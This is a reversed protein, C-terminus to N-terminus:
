AQPAGSPTRITRMLMSISAAGMSCYLISSVVAAAILGYRPITFSWLTIGSIAAISNIMRVVRTKGSILLWIEGIRVCSMGVVGPLLLLFPTLAAAFSSGFLMAILFQGSLGLILMSITSIVIVILVTRKCLRPDVKGASHPLLVQGLAGPFYWIVEALNVANSYLGLEEPPRTAGLLFSDFRSVAFYSLSAGYYPLGTKSVARWDTTMSRRADRNSCDSLLARAQIALALTVGTGGAVYVAFYETVSSRGLWYLVATGGAVVFAGAMRAFSVFPIKKYGYLLGILDRQVVALSCAAITLPANHGGLEVISSTGTTPALASIITAVVAGILGHGFIGRLVVRRDPAVLSGNAVKVTLGQEVGLDLIIHLITPVLILLALVGRDSRGLARSALTSTVLMSAALCAQSVFNLGTNLVLFNLRGRFNPRNDFTTLRL